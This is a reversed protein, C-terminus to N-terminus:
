ADPSHGPGLTGNQGFAPRKTTSGSGSATGSGSSSGGGSPASPEAPSSSSGVSTGAATGTPLVPHQVPATTETSSPRSPTVSAPRTGSSESPSRSASAVVATPATSQRHEAPRPHVHRHSTRSSQARHHTIRRVHVAPSIKRDVRNPSLALAIAGTAKAGDISGIPRAGDHGVHLRSPSAADRKSVTPSAVLQAAAIAIGALAIVAAAVRVVGSQLLRELSSGPHDRVEAAPIPPEPEPVEEDPGRIVAHIEASDEGWFAEPGPPSAADHFEAPRADPVEAPEPKGFPVLEERPGLWDRPFPVVNGQGGAKAGGQETKPGDTEV